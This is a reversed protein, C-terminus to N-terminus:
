ITRWGRLRDKRGQGTKSRGFTTNKTKGKSTKLTAVKEDYVDKEVNKQSTLDDVETELEDDDDDDKGSMQWDVVLRCALM